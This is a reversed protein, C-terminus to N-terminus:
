YIGVAIGKFVDESLARNSFTINRDVTELRKIAWSSFATIKRSLPRLFFLRSSISTITQRVPPMGELWEATTVERAVETAKASPKEEFKNIM